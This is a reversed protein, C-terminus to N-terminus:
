FNITTLINHFKLQRNFNDLLNSNEGLAGRALKIQYASWNPNKLIEIAFVPPGM